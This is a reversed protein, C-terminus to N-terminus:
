KNCREDEAQTKPSIRYLESCYEVRRREAERDQRDRWEWESYLFLGGFLVVAAAIIKETQSLKKTRDIFKFPKNTPKM